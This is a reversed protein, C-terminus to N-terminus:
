RYSFTYKCDEYQFTCTDWNTPINDATDEDVDFLCPCYHKSHEKTKQNFNEDLSMAWKPLAEKYLVDLTDNTEAERLLLRPDGFFKCQVCPRLKQCTSRCTDCRECFEGSM